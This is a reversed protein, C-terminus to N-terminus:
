PRDTPTPGAGGLICEQTCRTACHRPVEGDASRMAPTRSPCTRRCPQTSRPVGTKLKQGQARRDHNLAAQMQLACEFVAVSAYRASRLRQISLPRETSHELPGHGKWTSRGCRASGLQSRCQCVRSVLHCVATPKGPELVIPNLFACWHESHCSISVLRRVHNPWPRHVLASLVM